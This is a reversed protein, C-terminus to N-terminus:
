SLRGAPVWVVKGNKWIALPRGSRKHNQVAERAAEELAARAKAQLARYVRLSGGGTNKSVIGWLQRSLITLKGEEEAIFVPEISSNDFIACSDLLPRYLKFFNYLGRSFRRKV